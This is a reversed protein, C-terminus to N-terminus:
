KWSDYGDALNYLEKFGIKSMASCARKSRGGAKCYVLTPKSKDLKAIQQEFDPANIDIVKAGAIIGQSVEGPTRVDIIVLDKNESIMKKADATSVDKPVPNQDETNPQTTAAQEINKKNGCAFLTMSLSIFLISISFRM